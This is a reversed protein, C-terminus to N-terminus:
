KLLTTKQTIHINGCKLRIFYNGSAQERMSLMTHHKGAKKIGLSEKYVIRGLLNMVQISVEGQSPITYTINTSGNFPNPYNNILLFSEPSQRDLDEVSLVDEINYVVLSHSAVGYLQNGQRFSRYHNGSKAQGTMTLNERNEWSYIFCGQRNCVAIFDGYLLFDVIGGVSEFEARSYSAIQVPESPNSIDSFVLNDNDLIALYDNDVQMKQISEYNQYLLTPYEPNSIDIISLQNDDALYAINDDIHASNWDSGNYQGIQEPVTPDSVDYIYTIDEFCSNILLINGFHSINAPQYPLDTRSLLTISNFDNLDYIDLKQDGLFYGILDNGVSGRPHFTSDIVHINEEYNPNTIDLMALQLPPVDDDAVTHGKEMNVYFRNESVAVINSLDYMRHFGLEEPISPNVLSWASIGDYFHYTYLISNCLVAGFCSKPGSTFNLYSVNAPDSIDWIRLGDHSTALYLFNGYRNFQFVHPYSFSNILSISEPYSINFISIDPISIGEYRSEHSVYLYDDFLFADTSSLFECTKSGTLVPNGPFTIDYIKIGEQCILYLTNSDIVLQFGSTTQITTLYEPTDPAALSFIVLGAYRDLVFLHNNYITIDRSSYANADDLSLTRVLVPNAVDENCFVLIDGDRMLVYSYEGHLVFNCPSGWLPHIGAIAPSAPNSFDLITFSGNSITYVYNADALLDMGDDIWGSPTTYELEIGDIQSLLSAPFAFLAILLLLITTIIRPYM